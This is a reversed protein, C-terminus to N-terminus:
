RTQLDFESIWQKTLTRVEESFDFSQTTLLEQFDDARNSGLPLM